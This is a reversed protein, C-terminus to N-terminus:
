FLTKSAKQKTLKAFEMIEQVSAGKDRLSYFTTEGLLVYSWECGM